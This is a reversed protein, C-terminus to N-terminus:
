QEMRSTEVVSSSGGSNVPLRNITPKITPRLWLSIKEPQLTEEVVGLLSATLKEMEVEDRAVTAFRALVQAADYKQRYFRGDIFRQVRHRLPAFLAAITLTSLVVALSSTEGSATHFVSQFLIVSGFYVLGLLGTLISYQLTRRIIIDIDFLRYRTIAIALSLPFLVMLWGVFNMENGVRGKIALIVLLTAFTGGLGLGLGFAVWRMQARAVPERITIWNHIASGFIAAVCVLAPLVYIALALNQWSRDHTIVLLASVIVTTAGPLGYLLAPLLRPFRRLPAKIVPFSLAMLTISPFFYWFWSSPELQHLFTLLPHYTFEFLAPVSFGFVTIALYFGFVLFLYRAGLNRPRMFFTFAAVLFCLVPLLHNSPDHRFRWQMNYWYGAVGARILTIPVELTQEGRKITYMLTQGVELESPIPPVGDEPIPQGNIAIVRDDLQLPNTPPSVPYSVRYGDTDGGHIYAWGDSPHMVSWLNVLIIGAVWAGVVALTLWAGGDFRTENPM